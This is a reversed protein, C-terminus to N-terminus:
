GEKHFDMFQQFLRELGVVEWKKFNFFKFRQYCTTKGMGGKEVMFQIFPTKDAVTDFYDKVDGEYTPDFERIMGEVGKEEWLDFTGTEYVLKDRMTYFSAGHLGLYSCFAALQQKDLAELRCQLTPKTEKETVKSM